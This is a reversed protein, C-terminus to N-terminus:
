EPPSLPLLTVLGGLGFRVRMAVPTAFGSWM